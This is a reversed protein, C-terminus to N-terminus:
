LVHSPGITTQMKTEWEKMDQSSSGAGEQIGIAYVDPVYEISEPLLLDNLEGPPRGNM